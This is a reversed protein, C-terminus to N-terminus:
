MVIYKNKSKYTINKGIKIKINHTPNSRLDIWHFRIINVTSNKCSKNHTDNKDHNCFGNSTVEGTREACAKKSSSHM